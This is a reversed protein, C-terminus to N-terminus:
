ILRTLMQAARKVRYPWTSLVFWGGFRLRQTAESKRHQLSEAFWQVLSNTLLLYSTNVRSLPTGAALFHLTVWCGSCSVVVVLERTCPFVAAWAPVQVTRELWSVTVFVCIGEANWKVLQELMVKLMLYVCFIKSYVNTVWLIVTKGKSNWHLLPIFM